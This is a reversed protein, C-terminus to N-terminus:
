KQGVLFGRENMTILWQNNEKRFALSEQLKARAKEEGGNKMVVDYVVIIMATNVNGTDENNIYQIVSYRLNEVSFEEFLDKTEPKILFADDTWSNRHDATLLSLVQQRDDRVMAKIFNETTQYVAGDDENPKVTEIQKRSPAPGPSGEEKACGVFVLLAAVLIMGIVLGRRRM